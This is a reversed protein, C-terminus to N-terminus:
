EPLLCTGKDLFFEAGDSSFHATQAVRDVVGGGKSVINLYATFTGQFSGRTANSTDGFWVAGSLRYTNGDADVLTVGQPTLTGTFNTNGKPTVGSHFVSKLTGSVVTYTNEACVFVDGVVSEEFHEAPAAAAPAALAIASGAAVAAAAVVRAWGRASEIMPGGERQRGAARYPAAGAHYGRGAGGSGLAVVESVPHQCAGPLLFAWTPLLREALGVSPGRDRVHTNWM